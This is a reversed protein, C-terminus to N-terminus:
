ICYYDSYKKIFAEAYKIAIEIFDDEYCSNNYDLEIDEVSANFFNLCDEAKDMIGRVDIFLNEKNNVKCFYHIDNKIKYIDYGFIKNLAIAFATCYGKLFIEINSDDDICCEEYDIKQKIVDGCKIDRLRIKCLNSKLCNSIYYDM